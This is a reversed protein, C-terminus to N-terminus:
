SNGLDDLSCAGSTGAARFQSFLEEWPERSVQPFSLILGSVPFVTCHILASSESDLLGHKLGPEEM